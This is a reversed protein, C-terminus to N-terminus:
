RGEQDTKGKAAALASEFNGDFFSVNHFAENAIAQTVYRADNTSAGFVIIRTNHDEIPLRGDDKALKIEGVDKGPLVLSRPINVAGHITKAAYDAPERVDVWVATRDAKYVYAIGDAEIQTLGVLARWTPIGLQYRRVNTFNDALLEAALRKSKGCFPGNCYLVIPADRDEHLVRAIEAVDSVYVSLPVGPKAAVNLAGPIHSISFELHPRADFVNASNASLIQQLENTSIEFTQPNAENLTAQYVSQASASTALLLTAVATLLLPRLRHAIILM